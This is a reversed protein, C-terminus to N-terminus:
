WGASFWSVLQWSANWSSVMEGVHLKMLKDSWWTAMEDVKRIMLNGNQRCAIEYVQWKMLKGNWWSAVGDVHCEIM